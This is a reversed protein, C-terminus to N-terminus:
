EVRLVSSEGGFGDPVRLTSAPDAILREENLLFNYHYTKGKRLPLSLTWTGDGDDDSLPIGKSNWGEFDGVLKVSVADPAVLSFAVDIRNRARFGLVVAIAATALALASVIALILIRRTQGAKHGKDNLDPSSEAGAAAEVTSILSADRLIFPLVDAYSPRCSPCGLVHEELSQSSRRDIEAGASWVGILRKAEDCKM